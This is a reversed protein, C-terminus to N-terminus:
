QNAPIENPDTHFTSSWSRWASVTVLEDSIPMTNMFEEDDTPEASSPAPKDSSPQTPSAASPSPTEADRQCSSLGIIM